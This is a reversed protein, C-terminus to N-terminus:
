YKFEVDNGMFSNINNRLGGTKQEAIDNKIQNIDQRMAKQQIFFYRILLSIIILFIFIILSIVLGWSNYSQGILEEQPM